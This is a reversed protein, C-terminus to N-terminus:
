PRAEFLADLASDNVALRSRLAALAEPTRDPGDIAESAARVLSDAELRSPDVLAAWTGGEAALSAMKPSYDLLVAPRGHLLAAMAGHYRMTIVLRSRGVEAMVTDLDPSVVEVPSGIRDAVARHLRDDHVAEFSTLRPKLGTTTAAAEVARAAADLGPQWSAAAGSAKARYTRWGPRNPPRLIVCMTDAPEVPPPELAAVPDAGIAPEPLGWDRLRRASDADRVTVSRLRRLATRAMARGVTGPVRGVGIGVAAAPCRAAAAAYLRSAHFPINWPSTEAQVIGGAVVMGDCGRLTRALAPSHAPHHHSVAAIGHTRRTRDADISVAVPEAGRAQVAECLARLILEDGLNDSGFWGTLAIRRTM